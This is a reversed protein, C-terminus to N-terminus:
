LSQHLDKSGSKGGRVTRRRRKLAEKCECEGVGETFETGTELNDREYVGRYVTGSSDEGLFAFGEDTRGILVSAYEFGKLVEDLVRRRTLTGAGNDDARGGHEAAGRTRAAVDLQLDQFM